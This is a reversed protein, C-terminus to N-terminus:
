ADALRDIIDPFSGGANNVDHGEGAHRARHHGGQTFPYPFLMM